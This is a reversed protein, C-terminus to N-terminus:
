LVCGHILSVPQTTPQAGTGLGLAFRVAEQQSQNLKRVSPSIFLDSERDDTNCSITNPQHSISSISAVYDLDFVAQIVSGAIPHDTGCQDLEDIASLLKKHVEVSSQPILTLSGDYDMLRHVGDDDNETGDHNSDKVKATTRNSPRPAKPVKKANSGFLAVSIATDSVECVVAGWRNLKLQNSARIEVEDGTTFRHAPLLPTTSALHLPRTTEMEADLHQDQKQRNSDLPALRVVTRGYLGVSIDSVTLRNLRNSRGVDDDRNIKDSGDGGEGSRPENNRLESAELEESLWARQEQCFQRIHADTALMGYDILLLFTTVGPCM